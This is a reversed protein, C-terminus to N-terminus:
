EGQADIFLDKFKDQLGEALYSKFGYEICVKIFGEKSLNDDIFGFEPTNEWPLNVLRLNDIILEENEIINQFKKSEKKLENKLFKIATKNGIGSVGLVGDGSCGSIAKVFAWKDCGIQYKEKFSRETTYSFKVPDFMVVDEGDLLQYFDNDRSIIIFNYEEKYQEIIKAIIDDSEMGPSILQNKWGITPLMFFRAINFQPIAISNLKKEEEKQAARNEKYQPYILKRELIQSDDWCFIYKNAFIKEQINFLKRILGFLIGTSSGNFSLEKTAHKVVHCLANGDVLAIKNKNAM